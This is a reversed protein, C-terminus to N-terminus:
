ATTRARQNRSHRALSGPQLGDDRRGHEAAVPRQDVTRAVVRILPQPQV